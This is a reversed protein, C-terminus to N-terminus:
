TSDTNAVGNEEIDTDFIPVNILRCQELESITRLKRYAAVAKNADVFDLFMDFGEGRRTRYSGLFEKLARHIRESTIRGYGRAVDFLHIKPGDANFDITYKLTQSPIMDLMATLTPKPTRTQGPVFHVVVHLGDGERVVETDFRYHIQAYEITLWRRPVDTTPLHMSRTRNESADLLMSDIIRVFKDYKEAQTVLDGSYQEAEALDVDDPKFAQRLCAQRQAIQCEMTCQIQQPVPSPNSLCSRCSSEETRLGCPCSVIIRARCPENSPCPGDHCEIGCDHECYERRIQCPQKCSETEELCIGSHCTRICTHRGCKLQKGCKAGCSVSEVYCPVAPLARHGGACMKPVLVPCPSCAGPHCISSCRHECNERPKNCTNHCLPPPTGCAVPPPIVKSGCGCTVPERIVVRCPKCKGLHCIEDCNHVGCNLPKNCVQLCLHNEAAYDKRGYQSCCVVDCKHKSCSKLTRCVQECQFESSVALEHCSVSRKSRGCRCTQTVLVKCPPCAGHHCTSDCKHIGCTNIRDCIKECTPVIDTCKTRTFGTVITKMCECMNGRVTPDNPCPGCSGEHCKRTCPHVGCAFMKNCASGCSWEASLTASESCLLPRSAQGCHCAGNGIVQECRGCPGDHCARPCRHVGCPLLRNCLKGCSHPQATPDGCRVHIGSPNQNPHSFCSSQPLLATCPPCPGPHCSLVCPHDCGPRKRSCPEGCSHATYQRSSIPNDIRGCFCKYVPLESEIYVYQCGPCRWEWKSGPLKSTPTNRKIWEHTCKLHFLAWCTSCNWVSQSVRIPAMCVMCEYGRRLEDVIRDALDGDGSQKSVLRPARKHTRRSNQLIDPSTSPQITQSSLEQGTLQPISNRINRSKRSKQSVVNSGSQSSGPAVPEPIESTVVGEVSQSHSMPGPQPGGERHRPRYRRHRQKVPEM